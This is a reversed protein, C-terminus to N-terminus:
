NKQESFKRKLTMAIAISSTIALVVWYWSVSSIMETKKFCWLSIAATPGGIAQSGLAYGFSIVAYRHAPPILQQAFAHFPACFAVGFLVFCMRVGIVGLITAGELLMFLPTACLVVCLSASLMMKERSIKSALYGFFPLACFDLILLATNISMMHAKTVSTVLPIFGNMLVLAISYNAYAFGSSIIILLLPKRHTWFISLLNPLTQSSKLADETFTTSPLRRRIMCGFLTTLCGILYLGRWGSDIANYHSLLSVGASALLIGGITSANYLGSLLDHQKESSNELLFIAGGMSEGSSFFNQLVRGLCFVLPALVGAQLYTPSFAIGASVFSMGALTLFLAQKRGYVDGIYGFVLSGLPRALMGLPIMAYILILATIPEKEPFIHPTLFPSLFGFLATDYHEFLNGLCASWLQARSPSKQLMASM